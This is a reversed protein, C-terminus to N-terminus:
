ADAVSRLLWEYLRLRHQIVEARFTAGAPLTWRRGLAAIDTEDLRARVEFVPGALPLPVAVEEASLAIPSVWTVEAALTGFMEKPYADLLLRVAQGQRLMRANTSSLYLWAELGDQPRYLKAVVQGARVNSGASVLVRAVVNQGSARIGQRLHYGVKGIERDLREIQLSHEADSLRNEAEAERLAARIRARDAALQLLRQQLENRKERVQLLEVQQREAADRSLHGAAALAGTRAVRKELVTQQERQMGLQREALSAREAAASAQDALVARRETALEQRLSHADVLYQREAHLSRLSIQPYAEGPLNTGAASIEMLLEGATVAQGARAHIRTVVGTETAVVDLFGEPPMLIGAARVRVPLEVVFATVALLMLTAIATM